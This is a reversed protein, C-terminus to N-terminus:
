EGCPDVKAEDLRCQRGQRVFHSLPDTGPVAGDHLVAAGPSQLQYMPVKLIVATGQEAIDHCEYAAALAYVGVPDREITDTLFRTLAPEILDVQYKRAFELLIRADRQKVMEPSRIPYCHRLALDLTEADEPLLVV